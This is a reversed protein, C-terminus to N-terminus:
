VPPTLHKMIGKQVTRLSLLACKMRAPGVPIGLMDFVTQKDLKLVNALPMGILQDSLMSMSAQSIACGHGTWCIDSVTNHEGIQLSIGLEDGCIPNHGQESIDAIELLGHHHPERYHDLINERYIEQIPTLPQDGFSQPDPLQSM